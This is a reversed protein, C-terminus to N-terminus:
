RLPEPTPEPANPLKDVNLSNSETLAPVSVITGDDVQQTLKFSAAMDFEVVGATKSTASLDTNRTTKEGKITMDSEIAGNFSIGDPETFSLKLDYTGTLNDAKGASESNIDIQGTLGSEPKLAISADLSKQGGPIISTQWKFQEVQIFNGIMKVQDETPWTGNKVAGHIDAIIEAKIQAQNDAADATDYVVAINAIIDAFRTKEDKVKQLVANVTTILGDQDLELTVTSGSVSFYEAPIAEVLFKILAKIEANIQNIRNMENNQYNLLSPWIESIEPVSQYLYEPYQDPLGMDSQPALEQLATVFSKSFILKDDSLYIQGRYDKNDYKLNLDVGAKKGPVDLKYDCGLSTGIPISFEELSNGELRDITLTANGSLHNHLKRAPEFDMNDIATLVLDKPSVTAALVAFTFGFCLIVALVLIALTKRKILRSRMFMWRM